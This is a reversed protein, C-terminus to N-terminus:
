PPHPQIHFPTKAKWRSLARAAPRYNQETAAACAQQELAPSLPRTAKHRLFVKSLTLYRGSAKDRVRRM